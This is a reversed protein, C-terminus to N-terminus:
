AHGRHLREMGHRALRCLSILLQRERGLVYLLGIDGCIMADREGPHPRLGFSGPNAGRHFAKQVAPDRNIDFLFKQMQYLSM